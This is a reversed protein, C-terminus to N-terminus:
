SWTMVSTPWHSFNPPFVKEMGAFPSCSGSPIRTSPSPTPEPDEPRASVYDPMEFTDPFDTVKMPSKGACSTSNKKWPRSLIDPYLEATLRLYHQTGKLGHAWPLRVSPLAATLDTGSQVWRKLCHVAFTHRVDHLRPGKGRGGHPDRGGVPVQPTTMYKEQPTGAGTPPPSYYM